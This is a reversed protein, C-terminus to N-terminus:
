PGKEEEVHFRHILRHVVPTLLVGAAVLVALGSYLAYCGAFLKGGFTKPPDLPGMGSLIMAANAFADIGAMGELYHYGAMGAALSAGVLASAAAFSRLLRGAFERRSLLPQNMGELRTLGGAM